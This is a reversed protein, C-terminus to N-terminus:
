RGNGSKNGTVYNLGYGDFLRVTCGLSAMAQVWTSDVAPNRSTIALHKAGREAMWECLCLGLSGKLGVLWYTKDMSFGVQKSAPQVQVQITRPDDIKWSLIAHSDKPPVCTSSIDSLTIHPIHPVTPPPLPSLELTECAMWASILHDSVQRIRDPTFVFETETFDETPYTM